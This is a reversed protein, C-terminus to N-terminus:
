QELWPQVEPMSGHASQWSSESVISPSSATQQGHASFRPTHGVIM